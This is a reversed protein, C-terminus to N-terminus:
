LQGLAELGRALELIAGNIKKICRERERGNMKLNGDIANVFASRIREIQELWEQNDKGSDTKFKQLETYHAM